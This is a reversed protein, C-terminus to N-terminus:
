DIELDKKVKQGLNVTVQEQNNLSVQYRDLPRTAPGSYPEGLKNFHSGHCPCKFGDEAKNITCGLHTCVGSIARIHRRTRYIYIKKKPIFTFDNLPYDEIRGLKLLNYSATPPPFIEGIAAAVTIVGAGAVTGIAFRNLFERRKMKNDGEEWENKLSIISL